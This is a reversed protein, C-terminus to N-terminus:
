ALWGMRARPKTATACAAALDALESPWLLPSARDGSGPTPGITFPGSTMQRDDRTARDAWRLVAGRIVARVAAVAGPDTLDAICPVKLVALAEVDRIMEDLAAPTAKTFAALDSAALFPQM